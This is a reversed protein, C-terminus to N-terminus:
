LRCSIANQMQEGARRREQPQRGAKGRLADVARRAVAPGRTIPLRYRDAPDLPQLVREHHASWWAAPVV